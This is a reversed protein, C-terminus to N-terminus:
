VKDSTKLWSRTPSPIPPHNANQCCFNNNTTRRLNAFSLMKCSNRKYTTGHFFISWDFKVIEGRWSITSNSHDSVDPKWGIACHSVHHTAYMVPQFQSSIEIIIYNSSMMLWRHTLSLGYRLDNKSKCWVRCTVNTRFFTHMNKCTDAHM